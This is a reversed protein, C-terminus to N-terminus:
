LNIPDPVEEQTSHTQRGNSICHESIKGWKCATYATATTERMYLDTKTFKQPITTM